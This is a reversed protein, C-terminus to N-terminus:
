IQVRRSRFDIDLFDSQSSALAKLFLTDYHNLMPPARLVFFNTLKTVYYV